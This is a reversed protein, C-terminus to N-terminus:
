VIVGPKKSIKIDLVSVIIFIFVFATITSLIINNSLFTHVGHWYMHEQYHLGNLSNAYDSFYKSCMMLSFSSIAIYGFIFIPMIELTISLTKRNM